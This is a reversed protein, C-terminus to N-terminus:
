VTQYVETNVYTSFDVNSNKIKVKTLDYYGINKNEVTSEQELEVDIDIKKYWGKGKKGKWSKKGGGQIEEAETVVELYCLDSIIM